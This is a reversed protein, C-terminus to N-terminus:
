LCPNELGACLIRIPAWNAAYANNAIYSIVCESVMMDLRSSGTTMSGLVISIEEFQQVIFPSLFYCMELSVETSILLWM